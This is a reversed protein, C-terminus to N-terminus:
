KAGFRDNLYQLLRETSEFDLCDDTQSTGYSSSLGGANLYSEIMVGDAGGELAIRANLVQREARKCSNAHNLDAMVFDNLYLSRLADKAKAVDTSSINSTYEGNNYGGRLVIHAYKCGDTAVQKGGYPFVCPRSVAYVSDVAKDVSGDTANKVGCCVDLGSAIDRHLTDESSRAGIFWYSVLDDFYEYLQPYLLEDAVPLGERLCDLMMRRCRCIGDDIDIKEDTALHFAAGKYGAGNSHPKSTYIRAVVMLDSCDDSVKKLRRLYDSMAEPDDASCPGCVVVFKKRSTFNEKLADDFFRKRSALKSTLPLLKKYECPSKLTKQESFM